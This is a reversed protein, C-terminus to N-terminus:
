QMEYFYFSNEGQIYQKKIVSSYHKPSHETFIDHTYDTWVFAQNPKTQLNQIHDDRFLHEIISKGCGGFGIGEQIACISQLEFPKHQLLAEFCNINEMHLFLVIFDHFVETEREEYMQFYALNGYPKATTQFRYYKPHIEYPVHPQLRLPIKEICKVSISSEKPIHIGRFPMGYIGQYPLCSFIYLDPNSFLNKQSLEISKIIPFFDDGASPYWFVSIKKKDLIHEFADSRKSLELLNQLKM